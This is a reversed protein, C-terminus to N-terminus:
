FLISPPIPVKRADRDPPMAVRVSLALLRLAQKPSFSISENIHTLLSNDLTPLPPNSGGDDSSCAAFTLGICISALYILKKKM